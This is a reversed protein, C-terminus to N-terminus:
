EAPLEALIDSPIAEVRRYVSINEPDDAATWTMQAATLGTIIYNHQWDGASYDYMGLIVAAGISDDNIINFRGTRRRASFSNLNDYMTFLQDRRTFEIYVYTGAALENGGNWETLEWIGSINNATVDLYQEGAEHKETCSVIALMAAALLTLGFLRKM